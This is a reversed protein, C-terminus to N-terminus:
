PMAKLGELLRRASEDAPALRVAADAHARAEAWRGLRALTTALNLQALFYDPRLKIAVEYHRAAADLQGQELLVNGLNAQAEASGPALRVAAELHGRAAELEDHTALAVGLNLQADAYNPDLRVAEAYSARALDLRGLERQAQGLNFHAPALGPQLRVAEELRSLAEPVRGLQLLAAGLNSLAEADGPRDVLAKEYCVAAKEWHRLAAQAQGLLVLAEAPKVMAEAADELLPVAEEPRGLRNLIRGAEIRARFFKPQIRIAERYEALAEEPKGLKDLALALNFRCSLITPNMRVATRFRECAAAYDGRRYLAQGVNAQAIASEPWKAVSDQYLAVPDGYLANRAFTAIGAPVALALLLALGGRGFKAVLGGAVVAIVAALPVYMRHEVTMQLTGPVLSTPALVLFFCAGCFGAAPRRWLAWWTATLLGVVVAIYPTIAAISAVKTFGYELVLPAGRFALWLYHTLTWFQTLWYAVAAGPTLAFTGGRMGTGPVLWLLPLWTAALALYFRRRQRWAEGFSGAVFCRDYLLVVAPATVMVEKCFMGALCAVWTFALWGNGAPRSQQTAGRVDPADTSPPTRLGRGVNGTARAFGHLTLLFFMGMLSETRQIVFTVAETQLPHVLWLLATAFATPLALENLRTGAAPRALTRRVLGFLALGGIVHFALNFLHYSWPDTGSIAYNVALSLNVLPRGAVAPGGENPPSLPGSLPWLHRLTTNDLIAPEDDYLFPAHFTNAYAALAAVVLALQLLPKVGRNERM